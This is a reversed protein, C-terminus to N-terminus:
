DKAKGILRKKVDSSGLKLINADIKECEVLNDYISSDSCARCTCKFGWAELIYSQYKEFGDTLHKTTYSITLEDGAAILSSGVSIVM